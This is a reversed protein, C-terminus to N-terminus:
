IIQTTEIFSFSLNLARLPCHYLHSVAMYQIAVVSFYYATPLLLLQILLLM